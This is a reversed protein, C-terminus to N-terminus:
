KHSPLRTLGLEDRGVLLLRPMSDDSMDRRHQSHSPLSIASVGLIENIM